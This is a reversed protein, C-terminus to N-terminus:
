GIKQLYRPQGSGCVVELFVLFIRIGPILSNNILNCGYKGNILPTIADSSDMLLKYITSIVDIM